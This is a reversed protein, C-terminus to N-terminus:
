FTITPLGKPSVWGQQFSACRGCREPCVKRVFPHRLAARISVRQVGGRVFEVAGSQRDAIVARPRLLTRALEWVSGGDADLIDTEKAPPPHRCVYCPFSHGLPCLLPTESQRNATRAVERRRWQGRGSCGSSRSAAAAQPRRHSQMSM